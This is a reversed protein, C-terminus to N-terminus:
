GQFPPRVPRPLMRIRQADSPHASLWRPLPRHPRVRAYRRWFGAAAATDFGARRMIDLALADAEAEMRRMAPLTGAIATGFFVGAGALAADGAEGAAAMVAATALLQLLGYWRLRRPHKLVAHAMEHALVFALEDDTGAFQLLGTTISLKGHRDM